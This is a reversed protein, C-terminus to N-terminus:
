DLRKPLLARVIISVGVSILIGRELMLGNFRWGLTLLCLAVGWFYIEAAFALPWQVATAGTSNVQPKLAPLIRPVRSAYAEYSPGLKRRLFPEENFILAAQILVIAIICFVAGSPPMLLSVAFTHLITGLYLPNRVFRYPGDALVADGHMSASHVTSAGLYAAGWTRAAAGATALICSLVLLGVIAQSFTSWGQLSIKEALLVWASRVTDLRLWINWPALFGLVFVLAHLVYRARFLLRGM